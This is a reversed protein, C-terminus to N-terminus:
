ASSRIRNLTPTLNARDREFDEPPTGDIEQDFAPMTPIGHPWPMPLNLAMWKMVSRSFWNDKTGSTKEGTRCKFADELHCIAQHATMRGWQRQSDPRLQRLREFIEAKDTPNSFTKKM